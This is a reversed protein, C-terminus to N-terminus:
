ARKGEAREQHRAFREARETLALLRSRTEAPRVAWQTLRVRDPGNYASWLARLLLFPWRTVLLRDWLALRNEFSPDDAPRRYHERLWTHQADDLRELAAHWRLDSLDLAPDGWGSYEWDVWRLREDEGWIANALNADVRCLALPFAGLALDTSSSTLHAACSDVLRCLRDHLVQGEAGTSALWGGYGSVFGRLEDLYPDSDFWHFIATPLEAGPVSDGRLDHIAQISALLARVQETGLPACLPEGPLWRYVVAPYPLIEGTDDLLLPQPAIDLGAARLFALTGYERAAREREDSVCLKCAYRCGDSWVSYLANNYGGPIRRVSVKGQTWTEACAAHAAAVVPLWEQPETVCGEIEPHWRDTAQRPKPTPVNAVCLSEQESQHFQVRFRPCTCASIRRASLSRHALRFANPRASRAYLFM